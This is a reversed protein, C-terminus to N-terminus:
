FSFQKMLRLYEESIEPKNVPLGLSEHVSLCQGSLLYSNCARSQHAPIYASECLPVGGRQSEPKEEAFNICTFGAPFIRRDSGPFSLTTM